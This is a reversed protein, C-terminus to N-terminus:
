LRELQECPMRELAADWEHLVILEHIVVTDKDVFSIAQAQVTGTKKSGVKRWCDEVRPELTWLAVKGLCLHLSVNVVDLEIEPPYTKAPRRNQTDQTSYSPSKAESQLM